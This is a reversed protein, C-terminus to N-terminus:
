DVAPRVVKGVSRGDRLEEFTQAGGRRAYRHSLVIADHAAARESVLCDVVAIADLDNLRYGSASMSASLIPFYSSCDRKITPVPFYGARSTMCAQWSALPASITVTAIRRM